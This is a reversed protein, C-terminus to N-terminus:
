NKKNLKIIRSLLDIDGADPLKHIMRHCNPCLVCFENETLTRTENEKIKSYPIKHHLEIYNHGINGYIESMDAGCATCKYGLLVKMRNKDKATIRGEYSIHNSVRKEEEISISEEIDKARDITTDFIKSLKEPSHQINNIAVFEAAKKDINNTIHNEKIIRDAEKDVYYDFLKEKPDTNKHQEKIVTNNKIYNTNTKQINSCTKQKKNSLADLIPFFLYWFLWIPFILAGTWKEDPLISFTLGSMFFSFLLFCFTSSDDSKKDVM